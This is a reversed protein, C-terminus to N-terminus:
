QNGGRSVPTSGTTNGPRDTPLGLGSGTQGNGQVGARNVDEQEGPPAADKRRKVEDFV